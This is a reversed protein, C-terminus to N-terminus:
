LASSILTRSTGTLDAAIRSRASSCVILVFRWLSFIAFILWMLPIKVSYPSTIPFLMFANRAFAPDKITWSFSRASTLGYITESSVARKRSTLSAISFILSNSVFISEIAFVRLCYSRNRDAGPTPGIVAAVINTKSQLGATKLFPLSNAAYIPKAGFLEPLPPLFKTVWMGLFHSHLLSTLARRTWHAWEMQLHLCLDSQTEEIKALFGFFTAM